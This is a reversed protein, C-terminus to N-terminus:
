RMTDARCAYYPVRPTSLQTIILLTSPRGSMVVNNLCKVFYALILFNTQINVLNVRFSGVAPQIGVVRSLWNWLLM